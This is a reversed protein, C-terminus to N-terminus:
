WLILILSFWTLIIQMLHCFQDQILNIRRDNAKLNDVVAHVFTNFMLMVTYLYTYIKDDKQTMILILAPLQIMFAWSFAHVILAVVYDYKYMALMEEESDDLKEDHSNRRRGTHVHRIQAIWWNRQKMNALQGQLYYDDVIHLFIMIPLILILKM